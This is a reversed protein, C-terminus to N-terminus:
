KIEGQKHWPLNRNLTVDVEISGMSAAWAKWSPAHDRIFAQHCLDALLRDLEMAHTIVARLARRARWARFGAFCNLVIAFVMLGYLAGAWTM